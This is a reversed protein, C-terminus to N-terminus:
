HGLPCTHTMTKLGNPVFAVPPKGFLDQECFSSPIFFIQSIEGNLM